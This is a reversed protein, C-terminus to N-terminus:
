FISSILQCVSLFYQFVTALLYSCRPRYLRDRRRSGPSKSQYSGPYAPPNERVSRYNVACKGPQEKVSVRNHHNFFNIFTTHKHHFKSIALYSYNSLKISYLIFYLLRCSHNNSESCVSAVKEPLNNAM